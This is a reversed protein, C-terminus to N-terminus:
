HISHHRVQAALMQAGAYKNDWSFENVPNSSGQNNTLFDLYKADRTAKFLWASAWLLEDQFIKKEGM